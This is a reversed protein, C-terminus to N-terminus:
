INKIKFVINKYILWLEWNWNQSQRSDGVM